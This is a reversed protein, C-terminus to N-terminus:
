LKLKVPLSKMCNDSVYLLTFDTVFFLFIYIDQIPKAPVFQSISINIM